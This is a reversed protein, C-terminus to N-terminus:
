LTWVFTKRYPAVGARAPRVEVTVREPKFDAPLTIPQEISAFYRFSFPIQKIHQDTMAVLDVSAAAGSREGDITIIVNGAITEEVRSERNLSFRLSYRRDAAAVAVIAFQQVGVTLTRAAQPNAIGRYFQLDQQARALQAQLDGITRAVESRERVQALRAEEDGARQVRTERQSQELEDIRNRLEARQSAAQIADFGAMKRGFEFMLYAALGILLVAALLLLWQRSSESRVVLRGPIESNM